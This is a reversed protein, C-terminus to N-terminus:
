VEVVVFATAITQTHTLSLHCSFCQSTAIGLNNWDVKLVPRGGDKQVSVYRCLILFPIYKHPFAVSFAKFFAEKIAFRVAFRETSKHHNSLCYTIEEESFIRLLKKQSYTYWESFRHIEVSDVGIGVIM